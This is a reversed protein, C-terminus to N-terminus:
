ITRAWLPVFEPTLEPPHFALVSPHEEIVELGALSVSFLYLVAWRATPAKLALDEYPPSDLRSTYFPTLPYDGLM